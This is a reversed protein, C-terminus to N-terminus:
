KGYLTWMKQCANSARCLRADTEKEVQSDHSGQVENNRSYVTSLSSVNSTDSIGRGKKM